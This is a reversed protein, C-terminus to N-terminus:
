RVQHSVVKRNPDQWEVWPGDFRFEDAEIIMVAANWDAVFLRREGAAFYETGGSTAPIAAGEEGHVFRGKGQLLVWLQARESEGGFGMGATIDVSDIQAPGATRAVHTGRTGRGTYAPIANAASTTMATMTIM